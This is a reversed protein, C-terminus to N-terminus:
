SLVLAALAKAGYYIASWLALSVAGIILPWARAIIREFGFLHPADDTDPLSTM